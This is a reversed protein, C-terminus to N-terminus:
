VKETFCHFLSTYTLMSICKCSIFMSFRCYSNPVCLFSLCVPVLASVCFPIVIPHSDSFVQYVCPTRRSAHLCTEQGNIKECMLGILRNESPNLCHSQLDRSFWTLDLHSHAWSCTSHLLIQISESFNLSIWHICAWLGTLLPKLKISELLNGTGKRRTLSSIFISKKWNYISKRRCSFHM